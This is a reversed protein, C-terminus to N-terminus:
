GARVCVVLLDLNDFRACIQKEHRGRQHLVELNRSWGLVTPVFWRVDPRKPDGTGSGIEDGTFSKVHGDLFALNVMSQHRAAPTYQKTFAVNFVVAGACRGHLGDHPNTRSQHACQATAPGWVSLAMNMAYPFFIKPQLSYAPFASPDIEQADPCVWVSQDGAKPAAGEASLGSYPRDEMFPPLANFWDTPRSLQTAPQVGQGRKAVATTFM